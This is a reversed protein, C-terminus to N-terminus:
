EIENWRRQQRLINSSSTDRVRQSLIWDLSGFEQNTSRLSKMKQDFMRDVKQDTNRREGLLNWTKAAMQGTHVSSTKMM